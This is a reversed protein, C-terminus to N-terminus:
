PQGKLAATIATTLEDLSEDEAASEPVITHLVDLSLALLDRLVKAEGKLTDIQKREDREAGLPLWSTSPAKIPPVIQGAGTPALVSEGGLGSETPM